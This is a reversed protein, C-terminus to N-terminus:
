LPELRKKMKQRHSGKMGTLPRNWIANRKKKEKGRKEKSSSSIRNKILNPSNITTVSVSPPWGRLFNCIAYIIECM